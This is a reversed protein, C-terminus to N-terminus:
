RKSKRERDIKSERERERKEERERVKEKGLRFCYCIDDLPEESGGRHLISYHTDLAAALPGLFM